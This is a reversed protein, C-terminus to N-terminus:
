PSTALVLKDRVQTPTERVTLSGRILDISTGSGRAAFQVIADTAVHITEGSPTTLEITPAAM